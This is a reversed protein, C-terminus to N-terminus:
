HRGQCLEDWLVRPLFQKNRGRGQLPLIQNKTVLMYSEEACIHLLSTAMKICVPFRMEFSVFNM